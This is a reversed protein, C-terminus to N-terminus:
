DKMRADQRSYAEDVAKMETSNAEYQSFDGYELIEKLAGAGLNHEEAVKAIIDMDVNTEGYM